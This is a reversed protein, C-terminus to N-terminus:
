NYNLKMGIRSLIKLRKGKCKEYWLSDYVFSEKLPNMELHMGFLAKLLIEHDENDYIGEFHIYHVGEHSKMKM